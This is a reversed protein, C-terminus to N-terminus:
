KVLRLHRDPKSDPKFDGDQEDVYQDIIGFSANMEKLRAEYEIMEKELM